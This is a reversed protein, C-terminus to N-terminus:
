TQDKHNLYETNSDPICQPQLFTPYRLIPWCSRYAATEMVSIVILSLGLALTYDPEYHTTYLTCSGIEFVQM